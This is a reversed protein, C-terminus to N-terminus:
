DLGKEDIFELISGISFWNEKVDYILTTAEPRTSVIYAARVEGNSHLLAVDLGGVTKIAERLAAVAAAVTKKNTAARLKGLIGTAYRTSINFSETLNRVSASKM